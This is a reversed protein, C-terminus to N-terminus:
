HPRGRPLTIADAERCEGLHCAVLCLRKQTPALAGLAPGLVQGLPPRRRRDDLQAARGLHIRAAVDGEVADAQPHIAALEDEEDARGAAALRGQDLQQDVLELRGLALDQDGAPVDRREAAGPDRLQAAADAGDELVELQEGVAVDVVVDGVRQLHDASRARLDAGLDRVRQAQDAECVLGLVEGVLEGAALLLPERDGAGEDVVGREQKRVLRGAVEIRGRGDPDHLREVADVAGARRHHHHGVVALHHVLHATAHDAEVGPADDAVLGRAPVGVLLGGALEARPHAARTPPPALAYQRRPPSPHHHQDALAHASRRLAAGLAAAITVTAIM